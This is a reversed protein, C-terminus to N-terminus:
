QALYKEALEAAYEVLTVCFVRDRDGSKLERCIISGFNEEFEKAAERIRAAHAAKEPAAVANGYGYRAGLVMFLGTVAGCVEKLGGMGAGFSSALRALPDADMGMEEAFSLVVAQCCNCGESFLTTAKESKTM